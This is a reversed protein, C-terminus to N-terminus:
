KTFVKLSLITKIQPLAIKGPETEREVSKMINLDLVEILYPSNELKTLFKLFNVFEGTVSLQVLLSPWPDEKESQKTVSLIELKVQSADGNKELFNILEVPFESDVFSAEIKNLDEQFAKYIDSIEKLKEREKKLHIIKNKEVFLAQSNSKIEKFLPYVVFIILVIILFVFSIFSIYNKKM